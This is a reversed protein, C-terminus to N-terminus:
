ILHIKSILHSSVISYVNELTSILASVLVYCVTYEYFIFM